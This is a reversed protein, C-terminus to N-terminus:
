LDIEFWVCTGDGREVDWRNAIVQVMLLGNGGGEPRPTPSEPREFGPGPDRVEIRVREEFVGLNVLVPHDHDAGGHRVANTVLESVLVRVDYLAADDFVGALEAAVLNRALKPAHVDGPVPFSRLPTRAVALLATDDAQAGLHFAELAEVVRAVADDAGAAGALAEALRQEGFREGDGVTDIVGDTYLVLVDDAQLPVTVPAWSVDDFAGPMPGTRGVQVARGDRVLFPLPHGGCLITAEDERLLVCCVSCLSLDPRELLEENLRSVAALPDELLRASARLTYRALATLAAADAGRGAVDGVLVLWGDRVQLADYFDGGVWNEEGAPRYRTSTAYGPIAPLEPPLLGLQLTRAIRSRETYLRANEVATGARRGLEEALELDSQTFSRGSEANVLSIAGITRGAAVMPVIIVSRMGITRILELQEPDQIAQELLEDPIETALESQGTRIVQATGTPADARVPFRANYELAFRVKEPDAHAVAVSRIMVGRDDPLSVGCWDALHPVALRAVLGLTHEYDLSSALVEGAQALLRQAIEARKVDTIDDVINCAWRVVGDADHIPTAKTVRWREEGTALNVARTVLPPPDKEGMLIRRGPLQEFRLPSGDENASEFRAMIERIPTALLEEPSDAGLIRAAADNAYVLEGEVTQVTVAETLSGLIAALNEGERWM